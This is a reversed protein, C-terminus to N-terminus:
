RALPGWAAGGIYLSITLITLMVLAVWREAGQATWSVLLLGSALLISAFVFFIERWYGNIEQNTKATRANVELTRWPGRECKKRDKEERAALDALRTKLDALAAEDAAKADKNEQIEAIKEELRLRTTQYDDALEDRAAQVKMEARRVGRQGVADCGRALLVLVLGAAVLPRGAWLSAQSLGSVVEPSPKWRRYDFGTKGAPQPLPTSSAAKGPDPVVFAEGCTPCSVRQGFHGETVQLRHGKPCTAEYPM